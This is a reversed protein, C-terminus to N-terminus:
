CDCVDAIDAAELPVSVEYPSKYPIGLIAVEAELDELRECGPVGAFTPTPDTPSKLVVQM